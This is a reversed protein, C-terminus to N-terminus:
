RALVAVEAQQIAAAPIVTPASVPQERHERQASIPLSGRGLQPYHNVPVARVYTVGL